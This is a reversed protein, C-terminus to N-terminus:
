RVGNCGQRRGLPQPNDQFQSVALVQGLRIRAQDDVDSDCWPWHMKIRPLEVM